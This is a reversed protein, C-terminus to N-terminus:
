RTLLLSASAAWLGIWTILSVTWLAYAFPRQGKRWIWWGILANLLWVVGGTLPLILLRIPDGPSTPVGTPDFRFMQNAPLGPQIGTLFAGLAVTGALGGILLGIAPPNKIIEVLISQPQASVPEIKELSGHASLDTLFRAFAAPDDPSIALRRRKTVLLLLRGGRDTALWEVFEGGEVRMRGHWMELWGPASRRIADPIQSGSRIEEVEEIPIIERWSGFRLTLSGSSSIEYCATLLFIIRYLIAPLFVLGAAALSLGV